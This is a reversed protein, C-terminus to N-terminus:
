EPHVVCIFRVDAPLSSKIRDIHKRGANLVAAKDVGLKAWKAMLNAIMAADRQKNIAHDGFEDRFQKIVEPDTQAQERANMDLTIDKVGPNEAKLKEFLEGQRRGIYGEKIESEIDGAADYLGMDDVVEVPVESL